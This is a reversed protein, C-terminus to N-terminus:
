RPARILALHLLYSETVTGDPFVDGVAREEAALVPGSREPPLVLFFSHSALNALHVALPVERSWRLERYEVPVGLDGLLRPVRRPVDFRHHVPVAAAIRREQEAVWAVAPDLLNWWLALTGGPRLVRLAEPVSRAPETWHWSQAYGVLDFRGAAFPLANGDGHVLPVGPLATRFQAAMGAGPEVATVEAGHRLLLGSAIGTGAGVDLVRQGALPRGTHRALEAFLEPPYGPRAADYEAAVANFSSAYRTLPVRSTTM